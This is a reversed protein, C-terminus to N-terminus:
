GWSEMLMKLDSILAEFKKLDKRRGKEPKVDLGRCVGLMDRLDRLRAQTPSGPEARTGIEKQLRTLEEDIASGYAALCARFCARLLELEEVLSKM